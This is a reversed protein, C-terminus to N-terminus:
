AQMEIHMMDMTQSWNEKTTSHKVNKTDFNWQNLKFLKDVVDIQLFVVMQLKLQFDLSFKLASKKQFEEWREIAQAVSAQNTDFWLYKCLRENSVLKFDRAWTSQLLFCNFIFDTKFILCSKLSISYIITKSWNSTPSLSNFSFWHFKLVFFDFMISYIFISRLGYVHHM